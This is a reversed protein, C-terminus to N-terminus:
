IKEVSRLSIGLLQAVVEKDAKVVPRDKGLAKLAIYAAFKSSEPVDKHNKQVAHGQDEQEPVHAAEEEEEPAHGQDEEEPVHAAEEEQPTNPSFNLDLEQPPTLNIDFLVM